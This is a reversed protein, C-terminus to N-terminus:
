EGRAIVKGDPMVTYSTACDDANGDICPQIFVAKNNEKAMRKATAIAKTKTKEIVEPVSYDLCEIIYDRM